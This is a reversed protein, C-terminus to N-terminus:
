PQRFNGTRNYYWCLNIYDLDSRPVKKLWAAALDSRPVKKLRAAALDSRPVKKLWAAALNHQYTLIKKNFGYSIM